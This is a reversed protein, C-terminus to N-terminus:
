EGLGRLRTLIIKFHRFQGIRSIFTFKVVKERFTCKTKNGQTISRRRKRYSKEKYVVGQKKQTETRNRRPSTRSGRALSYMIKYPSLPSDPLIYRVGESPVVNSGPFCYLTDTLILSIPFTNSIKM